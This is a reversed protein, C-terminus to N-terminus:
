GVSLELCMECPTWDEPCGKAMFVYPSGPIVLGCLMTGAQYNPAIHAMKCRHERVWVVDEKANLEISIDIHSLEVPLVVNVECKIQTRKPLVDLAEGFVVGLDRRLKDMIKKNVM